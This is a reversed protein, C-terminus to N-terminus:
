QVKRYIFADSTLVARLLATYDGGGSRYAKAADVVSCADGEEEERGVWFRFSHRVFCQEVLPSAALKAVLERADKFSGDFGDGAGTLEGSADIAKGHDTTRYQGLHDYQEFTLGLPDM